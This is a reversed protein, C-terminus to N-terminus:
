ASPVEKPPEEEGEEEEEGFLDDEDEDEGMLTNPSDIELDGEDEEDESKPPKPLEDWIAVRANSRDAVYLKFKIPPGEEEEK